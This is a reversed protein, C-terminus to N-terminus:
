ERSPAEGRPTDIPQSVSRPYNGYGDVVLNPPGDGARRLEPVVGFARRVAGPGTVVGPVEGLLALAEDYPVLVSSRV